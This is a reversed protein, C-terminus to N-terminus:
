RVSPRAACRGAGCFAEYQVCPACAPRPGLRPPCASRLAAADRNFRAQETASIAASACGACASCQDGPAVAVCDADVACRQSYSSTDIVTSGCATSLFMLATVHVLRM